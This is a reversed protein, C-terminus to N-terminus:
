AAAWALGEEVENMPFFRLDGGYSRALAERSFLSFNSDAVVAIREFRRKPAGFHALAHVLEAGYGDFDEEVELVLRDHGINDNHAALWARVIPDVDPEIVTGAISLALVNDPPGNLIRIM